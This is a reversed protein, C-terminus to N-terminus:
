LSLVEPQQATLLPWAPVAYANAHVVPGWTEGQPLEARYREELAAKKVDLSTHYCM